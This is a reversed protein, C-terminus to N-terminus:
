CLSLEPHIETPVSSWFPAHSALRQEWVELAPSLKEWPLRPNHLEEWPGEPKLPWTVVREPKFLRTPIHPCVSPRRFGIM